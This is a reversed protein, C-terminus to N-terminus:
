VIPQVFASFPDPILNTYDVKCDVFNENITLEKCPELLCPLCCAAYSPRPLTRIVEYASPHALTSTAEDRCLHIVSAGHLAILCLLLSQYRPTEMSLNNWVLPLLPLQGSAEHVITM